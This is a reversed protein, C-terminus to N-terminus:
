RAWGAPAIFGLFVLLREVNAPGALDYRDLELQLGFFLANALVLEAHAGEFTFDVAPQMKQDRLRRPSGARTRLM